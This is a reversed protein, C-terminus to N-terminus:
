KIVFSQAIVEFARKFNWHSKEDSTLTLIYGKSDKVWYVQYWFVDNNSSKGHYQFICCEGAGLFATKRNFMKLGEVSNKILEENKQAYTKLDISADQINEVLLNLNERFKDKSDEPDAIAMLQIGLNKLDGTLEQIKWGTPYQISFQESEFMKWIGTQANLCSGVTLPLLVLFIFKLKKM